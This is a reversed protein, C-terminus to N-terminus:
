APVSRIEGSMSSPTATTIANGTGACAVLAPNQGHADRALAFGRAVSEESIVDVECFVGGIEGAVAQGREMQRDFIAVRVDHNSLLRATAEGLGSAAGTVVAAIQPGLEM